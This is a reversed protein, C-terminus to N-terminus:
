NWEKKEEENDKVELEAEVVNNENTENAEKISQIIMPIPKYYHYIGEFLYDIGLYLLAISVGIRALDQDLNEGQVFCIIDFTILYIGLPLHLAKDLFCNKRRRTESFCMSIFDLTVFSGGFITIWNYITLRTSNAGIVGTLRLIGIVLAVIAIVILEVSYILKIKKDNPM